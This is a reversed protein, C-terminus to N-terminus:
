DAKSRRYHEAVKHRNGCGAMSCWRRGRNKSVDRFLLVCGPNACRKLPSGGAGAVADALSRAIAVLPSAARRPRLPSVEDRLIGGDFTLRRSRADLSLLANVARLDARPPERGDIASELLARVNGRLNRVRELSLKHAGPDGLGAAEFWGALAAPSDLLDVLRGDPGAATTNALDVAVNNGVFFFDM